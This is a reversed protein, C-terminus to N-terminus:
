AKPSPRLTIDDPAGLVEWLTPTRGPDGFSNWLTFGKFSKKATYMLRDAFEMAATEDGPTKDFVAVGISFSVRWQRAGTVARLKYQLKDVVFLAETRGTEPLILAFEDGGIRAVTDSRRLTELAVDAIAKLVRDGESHGYNDNVQKFNDCDIYALCFTSGKREHRAIENALAEQFGKRNRAGTLMDVRATFREQNYLKRVAATLLVAIVYELLVNAYAIYLHVPKIYPSDQQTVQVVATTVAAVAFVLGWGRGCNWAVLLIPFLYFAALSLANSTARDLAAIAVFLAMGFLLADRRKLRFLNFKLSAHPIDEM